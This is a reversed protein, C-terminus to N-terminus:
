WVVEERDGDTANGALLEDAYVGYNGAEDHSLAVDHMLEVADRLAAKDIKDSFANKLTDLEGALKALLAVAPRAVASKSARARIIRAGAPASIDTDQDTTQPSNM